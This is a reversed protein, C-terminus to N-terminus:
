WRQRRLFWLDDALLGLLEELFELDRMPRPGSRSSPRRHGALPEVDATMWEVRRGIPIQRELSRDYLARRRPDSLTEYAEVVQRFKESSSGAGADPHYRRALSHYAVRIADDDAQPSIGLIAYFTM